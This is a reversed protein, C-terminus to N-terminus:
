PSSPVSWRCLSPWATCCLSRRRPWCVSPWVLWWERVRVDPWLNFPWVFWENAMVDPWLNFNKHTMWTMVWSSQCWALSIFPELIVLTMVEHVRLNPWLNFSRFDDSIVEWMPNSTILWLTVCVGVDPCLSLTLPNCMEDSRFAWMLEPNFTLPNCLNESMFEWM